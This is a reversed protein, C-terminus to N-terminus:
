MSPCAAELHLRRQEVEILYAILRALVARGQGLVTKLSELLQEDSLDTLDM